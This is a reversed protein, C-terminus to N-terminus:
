CTSLTVWIITADPLELVGPQLRAAGPLIVIVKRNVVRLLIVLMRIALLETM